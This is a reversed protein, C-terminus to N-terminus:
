FLEWVGRPSLNIPKMIHKKRLETAAWRIDYNWTYFLDDNKDLNKGYMEYFKKFVEMIPASGGLQNLVNKLLIQLDEKEM